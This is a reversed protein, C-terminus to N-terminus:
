LEKLKIPIENCNRWLVPLATEGCSKKESICSLESILHSHKRNVPHQTPWPSCWFWCRSTGLQSQWRGGESLLDTRKEWAGDVWWILVESLRSAFISRERRRFFAWVKEAQMLTRRPQLFDQRLDPGHASFRRCALPPLTILDTTPIQLHYARWPQGRHRLLSLVGSPADQRKWLGLSTRELFWALM